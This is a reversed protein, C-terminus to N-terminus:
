EVANVIVTALREASRGDKFQCQAMVIEERGTKYSDEGRLATNIEKLFLERTTGLAIGRYSKLIHLHDWLEFFRKASDFYPRETPYDFAAAVLPKGFIAGEIFFTSYMSVVVDSHYLSNELFEISREDMEWGSGDGIATTSAEVLVGYKEKMNHITKEKFDYRPYPRVLIQVPTTIEGKQVAEALAVLAAMDAELGAKGSLAYLIIKKSPDGGLKKLFDARPLFDKKTFHLDYQLVGTVRIEGTFDGLKEAQSKIMDTQVVLTDPHLRLFTKSFFTDWSFVMGVSPVGRRKAERLLCYEESWVMTPCFVLSPSHKQFIDNFFNRPYAGYIRRVLGRWPKGLSGLAYLFRKYVYVPARKLYQLKSVRRSGRFFTVKADAKVRYSHISSRELFTFFIESAATRVIEPLVDFEVNDFPYTSRYHDLQTKPVLFVLRVERQGKLISLAETRLFNRAFFNSTVPVLIVKPSANM